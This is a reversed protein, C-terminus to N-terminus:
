LTLGTLIMGTRLARGLVRKDTIAIVIIGTVRAAPVIKHRHGSRTDAPDPPPSLAKLPRM